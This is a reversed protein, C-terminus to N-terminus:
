ARHLGHTVLTEAYRRIAGLVFESVQKFCQPNPKTKFLIDSTQAKPLMSTLLPDCQTAQYTDQFNKEAQLDQTRLQVRRNELM